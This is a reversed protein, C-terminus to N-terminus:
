ELSEEVVLGGCKGSLRVGVVFGFGVGFSAGGLHGSVWSDPEGSGHVMDGGSSVAAADDEEFGFVVVGVLADEEFDFVFVRKFQM